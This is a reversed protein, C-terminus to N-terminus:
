VEGRRGGQLGPLHLHHVRHLRHQAEQPRPGRTAERHDRGACYKSDDYNVLLNNGLLYLSSINFIHLKKCSSSAVQKSVIKLLSKVPSM